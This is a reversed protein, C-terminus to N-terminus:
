SPYRDPTVDDASGSRTDSHTGGDTGGVADCLWAREADDWAALAHYEPIEALGSRTDPSAPDRSVRVDVVAPASAFAEALVGPLVSANEVHFGRVGLSEALRDYACYGTETGIIRGRYNLVQHAREINWASNNAVVVVIRAGVRAATELEMVNFGLSGDGVLAIVRRDPYNVAAAIASPVGVGLCGFPGVDLYTPARLSSRAWSLIDGGDVIVIADDTVHANVADIVQYPHLGGAPDAVSERMRRALSARKDANGRLLEDRWTRDLHVPAANARLLAHLASSADARVEVDGRRNALVQQSNRGIRLFRRAGRFVAPSGYAVEFDLARDITIVLDAEAMARARMAPVSSPIADTLAGKSERTDLYLAGTAEVFASVLDPIGLAERGAVVLPRTSASLVAAADAVAAPDAHKPARARRPYTAYPRVRPSRLLRSDFEVFAPGSTADDGLAASVAQDLADLVHRASRVSRAFRCVPRVLAMQDVEELAGMGAQEAPPSTSIVLIPSRAVYASALGTVANTLGPGATVIAVAVQGRLEAEAQAMHVAAVEHRTSVVTVGRADLEHWIPKMHSGPLSYVRQIGQAVLYEAIEGAVGGAAKLQEDV